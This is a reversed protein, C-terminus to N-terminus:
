AGHSQSVTEDAAYKLMPQLRFQRVAAAAGDRWRVTRSIGPDLGPVACVACGGGRAAHASRRGARDGDHEDGDRVRDGLTEDLAQGSGAAVM